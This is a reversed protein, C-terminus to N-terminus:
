LVLLARVLLPPAGQLQGGDLTQHDAARQEVRRVVVHGGGHVGGYSQQSPRMVCLVSSYTGWPVVAWPPYVRSMPGSCAPQVWLLRRTTSNSGPPSCVKVVPSLSHITSDRPPAQVTRTDSSGPAASPSPVASNSM